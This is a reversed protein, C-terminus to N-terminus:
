FYLTSVKQFFMNKIKRENIKLYFDDCIFIDKCAIRQYIHTYINIKEREIYIYIYEYLCSFFYIFLFKNEM